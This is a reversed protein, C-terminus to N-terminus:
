VRPAERSIGLRRCWPALKVGDPLTAVLMKVDMATVKQAM